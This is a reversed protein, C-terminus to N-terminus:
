AELELNHIGDRFTKSADKDAEVQLIGVIYEVAPLSLLCELGGGRCTWREARWDKSVM